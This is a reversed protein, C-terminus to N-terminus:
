ESWCSGFILLEKNKSDILAVERCGSFAGEHNLAFVQLKNEIVLKSVELSMNKLIESAGNKGSINGLSDMIEKTIVQEVVQLKEISVNRPSSYGTYQEYVADEISKKFGRSVKASYVSSSGYSNSSLTSALDFSNNVLDSISVLVESAAFINFSLILTLLFKM